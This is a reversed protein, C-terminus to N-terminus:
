SVIARLKKVLRDPIDLKRCTVYKPLHGPRCVPGLCCHRYFPRSTLTALRGFNRGKLMFSTSSFNEVAPPSIQRPAKKTVFTQCQNKKWSIKLRTKRNCTFLGMKILWNGYFDSCTWNKGSWINRVFINDLTPLVPRTVDLCNKAFRHMTQMIHM